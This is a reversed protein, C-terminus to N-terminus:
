RRSIRVRPDAAERQEQLASERTILVRVRLGDRVAGRFVMIASPGAAPVSVANELGGVVRICPCRYDAWSLHLRPQCSCLEAVPVSGPGVAPLLGTFLSM